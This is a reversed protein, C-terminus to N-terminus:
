SSSLTQRARLAAYNFDCVVSILKPQVTKLFGWCLRNSDGQIKGM